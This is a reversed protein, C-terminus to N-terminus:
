GRELRIMQHALDRIQSHIVESGKTRHQLGQEKALRFDERDRGRQVNELELKSDPTKKIKEISSAVFAM